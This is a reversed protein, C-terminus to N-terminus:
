KSEGATTVLQTQSSQFDGAVKISEAMALGMAGVGTVAAAKMAIGLGGATAAVENQRASLTEQARQEVAAAAAVDASAAINKRKARELNEEAAIFKTSDAAYKLRADNLQSEAIRVRGAADAEADKAKIVRASASELASTASNVQSTMSATMGSSVGLVKSKFADAFGTGAQEG